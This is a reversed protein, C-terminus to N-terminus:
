AAIAATERLRRVTEERGLAEMSEFLPPSVKKGTVAARLAGYFLGAKLGAREAAAKFAAELAAAKFEPVAAALDAAATLIERRRELKPMAAPDREIRDRFLFDVLGPVDSLLKTREQVHPQIVRWRDERFSLGAQDIFPRCAATFEEPGLARVYVGNMWLLKQADFVGSANNLRELSFRAILEPRSFVERDEGQGPSWGILAVYNLIAQPLYGRARLDSLAEAGHRKSLKKGDPGLVTSLHCFLPPRWGFGQYLLLHIPTTALWEEGRMVHTIGMLHDDVVSALHYTPLADSKLLVTDKLAPAEWRIEGRVADHLAVAAREPMRFRVVHKVDAPVNRDRCRGSYGPNEKRAAQAAREQELMEPTCDCRYALGKSILEEAYARYIERRLSQVYPGYDGGWEPAGEFDEGIAKLEARSPGEDVDMELWRLSDILYRVAGPVVRERDTDEIRLLFRGGHRRAYLWAYMATRFGGVHQFGTPSPAFRTRVIPNEM